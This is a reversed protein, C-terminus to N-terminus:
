RRAHAAVNEAAGRIAIEVVKPVVDCFITNVRCIVQSRLQEIRELGKRPMGAHTMLPFVKSVIGYKEPWDLVVQDDVSAVATRYLNDGDNVSATVDRCKEV